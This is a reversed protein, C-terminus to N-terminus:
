SFLILTKIREETVNKPTLDKPIFELTIYVKEISDHNLHSYNLIQFVPINPIFYLQYKKNVNFWYHLSRGDSEFFQVSDCAKCEFKYYLNFRDIHSSKPGILKRQCFRCNVDVTMM